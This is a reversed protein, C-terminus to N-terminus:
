ERPAGHARAVAPRHIPLGSLNTTRVVDLAPIIEREALPQAFQGARGDGHVVVAVDGREALCQAARPLSEIGDEVRVGAAADAATQNGIAPNIVARFRSLGFQAM